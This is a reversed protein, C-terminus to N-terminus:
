KKLKYCSFTVPNKRRKQLAEKALYIAQRNIKNLFFRVVWQVPQCPKVNLLNINLSVKNCSTASDKSLATLFVRM